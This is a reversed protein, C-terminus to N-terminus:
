VSSIANMTTPGPRLTEVAVIAQAAAARNPATSISTTAIRSTRGPGALRGSSASDTCKPTRAQTPVSDRKRL